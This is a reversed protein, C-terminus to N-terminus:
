IMFVVIYSSTVKNNFMNARVKIFPKKALTIIISKLAYLKLVEICGLLNVLKSLTM